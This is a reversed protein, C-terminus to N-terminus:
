AYASDSRDTYIYIYIYTYIYMHICIHIYYKNIQKRKYKDIYIYIYYLRAKFPLAFCQEKEKCKFSKIEDAEAAKIKNEETPDKEDSHGEDPCVGDKSNLDDSQGQEEELCTMEGPFHPTLGAQAEFLDRCCVRKQCLVSGIQSVIPEQRLSRDKECQLLAFM